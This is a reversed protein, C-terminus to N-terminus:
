SPLFRVHQVVTKLLGDAIGGYEILPPERCVRVKGGAAILLLEGRTFGAQPLLKVAHPMKMIRRPRGLGGLAEPQRVVVQGVPVADAHRRVDLQLTVVPWGIHVGLVGPVCGLLQLGALHRGDEVRHRVIDAEEGQGLVKPPLLHADRELPHFAAKGQPQVANVEAVALVAEARRVEPQRVGEALAFVAQGHPHELPRRAAPKLVLVEEAKGANEAANEHIHQRLGRHRVKGIRRQRILAEGPALQVKRGFRATGARQLQQQLLVSLGQQRPFQRKSIVAAHPAAHRQLSGQQPRRLVRLEVPQQDPYLVGGARQCLHNRLVHAEAPNFNLVPDQEQVPLAQDEVPDVPVVEAGHGPPDRLPFLQFAVEDGHLPVVDVGDAGRVVRVLAGQVLEAVAVAQIHNIFVVHFGVAAPVGVQAALGALVVHDRLVPGLKGGHQQVPGLAHEAPVPVVGAHQQPGAPVLGVAAADDMPDRLEEVPKVGGAGHVIFPDCPVGRVRVGAIHLAPHVGRRGVNRLEKCLVRFLRHEAALVGVGHAVGAAGHVLVGVQGLGFRMVLAAEQPVPGVLRNPFFVTVAFPEEGVAAVVAFARGVPVEAAVADDVAPVM